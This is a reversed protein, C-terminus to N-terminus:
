EPGNGELSNVEVTPNKGLLNVAKLISTRGKTIKSRRISNGTSNRWYESQGMIIFM